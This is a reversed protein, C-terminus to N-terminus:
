GEVDDYDEAPIADILRRRAADPDLGEFPSRPQVIEFEQRDSYGLGSNKLAFIVAAPELQKAEALGLRLSAWGLRLRDLYRASEHDPHERLFKYLWQRTFGCAAALGDISPPIGAADCGDVFSLTAKELADIDSIDVREAARVYFHRNARIAQRIAQKRVEATEKPSYSKSESIANLNGM